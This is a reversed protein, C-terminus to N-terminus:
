GLYSDGDNTEATPGQPIMLIETRKKDLSRQAYAYGYATVATVM